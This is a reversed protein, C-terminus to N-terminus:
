DPARGRRSCSDIVLWYDVATVCVRRGPILLAVRSGFVQVALVHQGAASLRGGAEQVLDIMEISNGDLDTAQVPM